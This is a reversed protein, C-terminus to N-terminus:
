KIELMKQNSTEKDFNNKIQYYEQLEIIKNNIKIKCKDKNNNIFDYGFIKIREYKDVKYLIIIGEDSSM